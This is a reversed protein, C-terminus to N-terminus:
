LCKKKEIVLINMKDHEYIYIDLNEQLSDFLYKLNYNKPLKLALVKPTCMMVENNFCRLVFTEIKMDGLALELNQKTKYGSGGWPPDVFIV